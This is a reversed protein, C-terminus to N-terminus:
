NAALQNRRAGRPPKKALKKRPPPMLKLLAEAEKKERRLRRLPEESRFVLELKGRLDELKFKHPQPIRRAKLAVRVQGQSLDGADLPEGPVAEYPYDEHSGVKLRKM